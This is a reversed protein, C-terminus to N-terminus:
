ATDTKVYRRYVQEAKRRPVDLDDAIFTIAEEESATHLADYTPETEADGGQLATEQGAKRLLDEHREAFADVEEATDTTVVNSLLTRRDEGPVAAFVDEFLGLDTYLSPRETPIDEGTVTTIFTAAGTYSGCEYTATIGDLEHFDTFNIDLQQQFRDWTEDDLLERREAEMHKKREVYEIDTYGTDTYLEDELDNRRVTLRNIDEVLDGTLREGNKHKEVKRRKYWRTLATAPSWRGGNVGVTEWFMYGLGGFALPAGLEVPLAFIAGMGGGGVGLVGATLVKRARDEDPDTSPLSDAYSELNYRLTHRDDRMTCWTGREEVREYFQEPDPQLDVGYEDEIQSALEEAEEFIDGTDDTEVPKRVTATFGDGDGYIRTQFGDMNRLEYTTDNADVLRIGAGPEYLSLPQVSYVETGVDEVAVM